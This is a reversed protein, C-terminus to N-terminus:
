VELVFRRAGAEVVRHLTGSPTELPSDGAKEVVLDLEQEVSVITKEVTRAQRRLDALRACLAAAKAGLEKRGENMAVVAARAVGGRSAADHVRDSM